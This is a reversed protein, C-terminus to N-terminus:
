CRLVDGVRAHLSSSARCVSAYAGFELSWRCLSVGSLFLVLWRAFFLFSLSEHVVELLLGCRSQVLVVCCVKVNEPSKDLLRIILEMAQAYVEEALLCPAVVMACRLEDVFLFEGLVRLHAVMLDLLGCDRLVDRAAEPTADVYHAFFSLLRRVLSQPPHYGPTHHSASSSASALSSSLSTLPSTFPATLPAVGNGPARSPLRSSASASASASLLPSALTAAPISSPPGPQSKLLCVLQALDAEPVQASTELLYEFM